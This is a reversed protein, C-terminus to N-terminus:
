QVVLWLLLKNDRFFSGSPALVQAAHAVPSLFHDVQPTTLARVLQILPQMAECISARATAEAGPKRYLTTSCCSSMPIALLLARKLEEPNYM